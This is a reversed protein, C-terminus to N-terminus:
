TRKVPPKITLQNVVRRVGQIGNIAQGAAIQQHGYTVTGTLTVEGNRTSVSVHCPSRIGRNSLKQTVQKTITADPIPAARM